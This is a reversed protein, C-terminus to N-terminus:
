KDPKLNPDHLRQNTEKDINDNLQDSFSRNLQIPKFNPDTMDLIYVAQPNDLYGQVQLDDMKFRQAIKEDAGKPQFHKKPAWGKKGAVTKVRVLKGKQSVLELVEGKKAKYIIDKKSEMKESKYIPVEKATVEVKTVASYLNGMALSLITVIKLMQRM